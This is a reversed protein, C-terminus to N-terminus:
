RPLENSTTAEGAPVMPQLIIEPPTSLTGVRSQPKNEIVELNLCPPHNGDPSLKPKARPSTDGGNTRGKSAGSVVSLSMLEMLRSSIGDREFTGPCVQLSVEGGPKILEPMLKM